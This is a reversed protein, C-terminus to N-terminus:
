TWAMRYLLLNLRRVTQSVLLFDLYIRVHLLERLFRCSIGCTILSVKFPRSHSCCPQKSFIFMASKYTAHPPIIWRVQTLIMAGALSSSLLRHKWINLAHLFVKRRISIESLDEPFTERWITRLFYTLTRLIVWVSYITSICQLHLCFAITLNAWCDHGPKLVQIELINHYSRDSFLWTHSITACLCSSGSEVVHWNVRPTTDGDYINIWDVTHVPSRALNISSSFRM